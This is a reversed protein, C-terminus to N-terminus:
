VKIVDKLSDYVTWLKEDSLSSKFDKPRIQYDIREIVNDDVKTIKTIYFRRNFFGVRTREFVFEIEWGGDFGEITMSFNMEEKLLVWLVM